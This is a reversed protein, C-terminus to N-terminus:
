QSQSSDNAKSQFLQHALQERDHHLTDLTRRNQVMIVWACGRREPSSAYVYTHQGVPNLQFWLTKIVM